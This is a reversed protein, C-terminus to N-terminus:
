ESAMRYCERREIKLMLHMNETLYSLKRAYWRFKGFFGGLFRDKELLVLRGVLCHRYIWGRSGRSKCLAGGGGGVEGADELNKAESM